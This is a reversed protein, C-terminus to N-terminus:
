FVLNLVYMVTIKDTTKDPHSVRDRLSQFASTTQPRSDLSFTQSQYTTVPPQRSFSSFTSSSRSKYEGLIIRTILDLLIHHTPCKARAPSSTFAYLTENTSVHPCIPFGLGLNSLLDFHIKRIYSPVAHMPNIQSLFRVLPSVSLLMKGRCVM